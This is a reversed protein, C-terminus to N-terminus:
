HPLSIGLLSLWEFRQVGGSNYDFRDKIWFMNQNKRDMEKIDSAPSSGASGFSPSKLDGADVSEM